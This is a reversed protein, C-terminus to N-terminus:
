VDVGCARWLRHQVSVGGDDKGAIRCPRDRRHLDARRYHFRRRWPRRCSACDALKNIIDQLEDIVPALSDYAAERNDSELDAKGHLEQARRITGIWKPYDPLIKAVQDAHGRYRRNTEMLVKLQCDLLIDCSDFYARKIHGIAKEWDQASDGSKGAATVVHRIAYRWENLSPIAFDEGFADIRRLNAETKNILSLAQDVFSM